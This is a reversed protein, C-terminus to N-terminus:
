GHMRGIVSLIDYSAEGGKLKVGDIKITTTFIKNKELVQSIVANMEDSNINVPGLNGLMMGVFSVTDPNVEYKLSSCCELVDPVTNRVVISYPRGYPTEDYDCERVMYYLDNRLNAELVDMIFNYEYDYRDYCSIVILKKQTQRISRITKTIDKCLDRVDIMECEIEAKTVIDSLRHYESDKDMILTKGTLARYQAVLFALVTREMIDAGVIYSIQVEKDGEPVITEPVEEDPIGSLLMEDTQYQRNDSSDLGEKKLQQMRMYDETRMRYTVLDVQGEVTDRREGSLVESIFKPGLDGQYVSWRTLGADSFFENIAKADYTNDVLYIVSSTVSVFPSDLLNILRTMNTNTFQLEDSTLVLTDIKVRNLNVYNEFDTFSKFIRIDYVATSSKISDDVNGAILFLKDKVIM